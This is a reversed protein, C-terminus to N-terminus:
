GLIRFSDVMGEIIPLYSLYDSKEGVYNITYVLGHHNVLVEMKQFLIHQITFTYIIEAGTYPGISKIPSRNLIFDGFSNKLKIIKEQVYEDLTKNANLENIEVYLKSYSTNTPSFKVIYDTGKLGETKIWNSPFDIQIDHIPNNYTLFNTGDNDIVGESLNNLPILPIL